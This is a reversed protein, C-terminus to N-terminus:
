DQIHVIATNTLKKPKPNYEEAIKRVDRLERKYDPSEEWEERLTKGKRSKYM